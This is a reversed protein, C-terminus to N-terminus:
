NKLVELYLNAAYEPPFEGSIKHLALILEMPLLKQLSNSLFKLVMGETKIIKFGNSRIEHVIQALDYVRLHGVIRDRASLDKTSLQLGMAVAIKRHFSESNPVTIICMGDKKLWTKLLKFLEATDEVHEFVNTALILDFPETPKFESFLCNYISARNGLETKAKEALEKAGEIIHREISHRKFLGGSVTGEGYGLELVRIGPFLHNSIKEALNSHFMQDYIKDDLVSGLHYNSAINEISKKFDSDSM